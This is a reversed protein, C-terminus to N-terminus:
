YQATVVRRLASTPPCSITYWESLNTPQPAQYDSPQHNRGAFGSTITGLPPPPPQFCGSVSSSLVHHADDFPTSRIEDCSFVRSNTSRATQRGNDMKIRPLANRDDTPSTSRDLREISDKSTAEYLTKVGSCDRSGVDVCSTQRVEPSSTPSSPPPLTTSSVLKGHTKMHKRLSSPHTYSKDCGAYRCNYPKDATHVHSHKKRDSSNAFRRDCGM